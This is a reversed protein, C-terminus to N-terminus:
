KDPSNEMGDFLPAPLKKTRQRRKRSLKKPVRGGLIDGIAEVIAGAFKVETDGTMVEAIVPLVNALEPKHKKLEEIAIESRSKWSNSALDWFIDQGNYYYPAELLKLKEKLSPVTYGQGELMSKLFSLEVLDLQTYRRIRGKQVREPHVLGQAEWYQLVRVSVGLYKAADAQTLHLASKIFLDLQLDPISRTVM